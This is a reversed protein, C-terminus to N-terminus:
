THRAAAAAAAIAANDTSSYDVFRSCCPVGTFVGRITTGIVASRIQANTIMLCWPNILAISFSVVYNLNRTMYFVGWNEALLTYKNVIFYACMACLSLFMAFSTIVVSLESRWSRLPRNRLSAFVRIYCISSIVAGVTSTVIMVDSNFSISWADGIRTMTGANVDYEYRRYQQFFLVYLAYLLPPSEM